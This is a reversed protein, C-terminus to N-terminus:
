KPTDLESEIRELEAYEEDSMEKTQHAFSHGESAVVFRMYKKLLERYDISM